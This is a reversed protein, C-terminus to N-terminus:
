SSAHPDRCPLGRDENENIESSVSQISRDIPQGNLPAQRLSAGSKAFLLQANGIHRDAFAAECYGLYLDWMRVFRADFGLAHVDALRQHFRERWHHLTRAYHPGIQQAHRLSLRSVRSLSALIEAVSALESGPFIRKAIWSPTERYEAFRWDDVTITQMLMAGQPTLLRDCAAFFEDYHN